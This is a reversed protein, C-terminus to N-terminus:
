LFITQKNCIINEENKEDKKERLENNFYILFILLISINNSINIAAESIGYMLTFIMVVTYKYYIENKNYKRIANYFMYMYIVYIIIGQKYLINLMYNDLVIPLDNGIISIGNKVYQYWYIPRHSLLNEISNNNKGFEMAVIISIITFILFANKTLWQIVKNKNANKLTDAFIIFLIAIIFGTRCLTLNYFIIIICLLIIKEIWTIKKRLLYYNILIGFIFLFLTNPNGFGLTYRILINNKEDKKYWNENEIIGLQSMVITVIFMIISSILFKKVVNDMKENQLTIAVLLPLIYNPDKTIIMVGISVISLITFVKANEIKKNKITAIINIVIIGLIIISVINITSGIYLQSYKFLVTLFIILTNVKM